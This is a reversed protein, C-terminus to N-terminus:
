RLMALVASGANEATIGAQALQASWSKSGRTAQTLAEGAPRGTKRALLLALITQQDGAGASRLGKLEPSAVQCRTLLVTDVVQTALQATTDGRRLAQLVAPALQASPIRLEDLVQRWALGQERAAAVRERGIAGTQALYWSVWLEAGDAGAMKARVVERKAMGSVAAYLSNQATALFYDDAASPRQPDFARDQFCHCGITPVALAPLPLLALTLALLILSRM